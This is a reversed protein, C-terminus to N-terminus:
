LAENWKWTETLGAQLQYSSETDQEQQGELHKGAEQGGYVKVGPVM